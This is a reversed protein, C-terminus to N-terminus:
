RVTEGALEMAFHPRRTAAHIGQVRRGNRSIMSEHIVALSDRLLTLEELYLLKIIIISIIIIIIIISIIIIVIIIIIIINNNIIIM